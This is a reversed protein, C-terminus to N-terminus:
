HELDGDIEEDLEDSLGSQFAHVETPLTPSDIPLQITANRPGLRQSGCPNSGRVQDTKSTSYSVSEVFDDVNNFADFDRKAYLIPVIPIRLAPRYHHSGIM